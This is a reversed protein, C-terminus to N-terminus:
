SLRIRYGCASYRNLGSRQSCLANGTGLHGIGIGISLVLEPIKGENTSDLQGSVALLLPVAMFFTTKECQLQQAEKTTTTHFKVM